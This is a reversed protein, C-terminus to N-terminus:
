SWVHGRFSYLLRGRGNEDQLWTVQELGDHRQSKVLEAGTPRYAATEDWEPHM